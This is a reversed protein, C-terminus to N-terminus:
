SGNVTILDRLKEYAGQKIGPVRMIEETSGFSGHTERYAIIEGARAEGIGPLTCLQEVGATNINVLGEMAQNQRLEEAEERGPFYLQQGDTLGSALNVYDSAGDERLGGVAELADVARSGEPLEVVGPNKVAGCVHVFITTQEPYEPVKAAQGVSGSDVLTEELTETTQEEGPLLVLARDPVSCGTFLLVCFLMAGLLKYAYTLKLKNKCM